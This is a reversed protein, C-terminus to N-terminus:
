PRTVNLRVFLKGDVANSLPVTVDVADPDSSDVAIDTWSALDTSWQVTQTTTTKSDATRTYSFTLNTEDMALTPLIAPDSVLPDGGLVFELGNAIGDGDADEDFGAAAGPDISTINTAAWSVYADGTSTYDLLLDLGDVRVSWTGTGATFGSADVTFDADTASMTGDVTGIIFSNSAESFNTIASDDIVVTVSPQAASVTFDGTVYLQSWDIGEAGTWDGFSVTYETTSGVEATFSDVMMLQSMGLKLTAGDAVTVAGCTENAVLLLTGAEVTIDGLADTTYGTLARDLEQTGEGQKVISLPQDGVVNGYYSYTEGAAVNITLTSPGERSDIQRTNNSSTYLGAITQDFGMPEFEATGKGGINLVTTAPLANDIGIQLRGQYINTEGSYDSTDGTLILTNGDAGSERGIQLVGTGTITGGYTNPAGTSVIIGGNDLTIGRNPHITVDQMKLEGSNRLTIYDSVFTAPVAGFAGDGIGNPVQVETRNNEADVVIGGSFTNGSNKLQVFKGGLNTARLTGEGSIVGTLYMSRNWRNAFSVTGSGLEWNNAYAMDANREHVYTCDGSLKVTDFTGISGPNGRVVTPDLVDLTAGTATWNAGGPKEGTDFVGGGFITLTDGPSISLPTDNNLDNVFEIEREGTDWEAGGAAITILGLNDTASKFTVKDTGLDLWLDGVTVGGDAITVTYNAGFDPFFAEQSGTNDWVVNSGSDDWNATTLDWDGNGATDAPNWTLQGYSASSLALLLPAM